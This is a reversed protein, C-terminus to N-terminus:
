NRWMAEREREIQARVREQARIREVIQKQSRIEWAILVALVVIVIWEATM